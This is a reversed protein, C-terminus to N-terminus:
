GALGAAGELHETRYEGDIRVITVHLLLDSRQLVAGSAKRNCQLFLQVFLHLVEMWITGIRTDVETYKAPLHGSTM